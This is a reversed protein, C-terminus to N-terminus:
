NDESIEKARKLLELIEYNDKDFIIETLKFNKEVNKLLKSVEVSIYKQFSIPEAKQNNYEFELQDKTLNPNYRYYAGNDKKISEVYEIPIFIGGVGDMKNLVGRIVGTTIELNEKESINMIKNILDKQQIEKECSIINFILNRVIDSKTQKM